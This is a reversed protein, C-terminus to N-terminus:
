TLSSMNDLLAAAGGTAVLKKTDSNLESYNIFYHKTIFFFTLIALCKELFYLFLPHAKSLETDAM